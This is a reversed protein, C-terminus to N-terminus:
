ARGGIMDLVMNGAQTFAGYDECQNGSQKSTDGAPEHTLDEACDVLEELVGKLQSWDWM